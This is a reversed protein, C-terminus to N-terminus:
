LYRSSKINIKEEIISQGSIYNHVKLRILCLRSAINASACPAYSIYERVICKKRENKSNRKEFANTLTTHM